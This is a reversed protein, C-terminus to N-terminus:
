IEGMPHRFHKWFDNPKMINVTGDGNNIIWCYEYAINSGFIIEREPDELWQGEENKILNSIMSNEVQVTPEQGYERVIEVYNGDLFEETERMNNRLIMHAIVNDEVKGSKAKFNTGQM